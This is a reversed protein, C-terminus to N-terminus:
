LLSDGLMLSPQQILGFQKVAVDQLLLRLVRHGIM